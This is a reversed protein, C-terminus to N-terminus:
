DSGDRWDPYLTHAIPRRVPRIITALPPPLPLSPISSTAGTSPVTAMTWTRASAIAGTSANGSRDRAFVAYFYERDANLGADITANLSGVYVLRGDTSNTPFRDDRVVVVVDSFDEVFPNTWELAIQRDQGVAHLALPNSPPTVDSATRFTATDFASVGRPVRSVARLQYGTNSTLGNLRVSHTRLLTDDTVRRAYDGVGYEVISVAAFDTDWTVLASRDDVSVVRLNRVVFTM